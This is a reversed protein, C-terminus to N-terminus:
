AGLPPTNFGIPCQRAEPSRTSQFLLSGAKLREERKERGEGKKRRGEQELVEISSKVGVRRTSHGRVIYDMGNSM